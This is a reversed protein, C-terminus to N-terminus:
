EKGMDILDNKLGLTLKQGLQELDMNNTFWADEM